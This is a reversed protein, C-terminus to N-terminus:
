HNASLDVPTQTTKAQAQSIFLTNLVAFFTLGAQTELTDEVLCSILFVLLFATYVPNLYRRLKIYPYILSIVFLLLGIVGFTVAFSLYQNHPRKYWEESLPFAKTSYVENMSSQLDGTGVGFLPHDRVVMLAAKAFYLRMIFSHGNVQHPKGYDELENVLEILRKHLFSWEPYRHNPINQQINRVDAANLAAVGVSDKMLGKSSLYRLLIEYRGLNYQQAYNFSDGPVRRNWERKLDEMQINMLVYYGNEVQGTTDFHILARGQANMQMPRNVPADKPHVQESRIRYVYVVFMGLLVTVVTISGFRIWWTQKWGLRLLYIVSLILLIALGGALGLLYMSVLIFLLVAIWAWKVARNPSSVMLWVSTAIAVTAYLGLRIHSMFRSTHRADVEPHLIFSYSLCWVMSLATGLVLGKLFWRWEQERLPESTFFIVTLFLLPMKIWIDDGAAAKDASYFVGVVHMLFVSLLLWFIGNNKVRNWKREFDMELLWNALLIIQPMSTAVPGFMM